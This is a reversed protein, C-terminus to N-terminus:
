SAGEEEDRDILQGERAENKHELVLLAAKSVRLSGFVAFATIPAWLIIHVWFPPNVMVELTLALACILAGVILTLFAAPGDGVNYQTYDLGCARCKDAFGLFTKFLTKQGCNPCLGFLAAQLTDPQGKPSTSRDETL